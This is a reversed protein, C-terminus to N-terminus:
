RPGEHAALGGSLCGHFQHFMQIDRLNDAGAGPLRASEQEIM